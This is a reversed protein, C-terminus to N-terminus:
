SGNNFNFKKITLSQFRTKFFDEFKQVSKVAKQPETILIISYDFRRDYKINFSSSLFIV